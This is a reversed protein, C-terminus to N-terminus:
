SLRDYETKIQNLLSNTAMIQRVKKYKWNGVVEPEVAFQKGINMKTIQVSFPKMRKYGKIELMKTDVEGSMMRNELELQNKVWEELYRKARFYQIVKENYFLDIASIQMNGRVRYLHVFLEQINQLTPKQFISLMTHFENFTIKEVDCVQGCFLNKPKLIDAYFDYESTDQLELYEKVSINDISRTITAM